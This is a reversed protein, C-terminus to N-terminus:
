IYREVSVYIGIKMLFTKLSIFSPDETGHGGGAQARGPRAQGEQQGEHGEEECDKAQRWCAQRRGPHEADGGSPLQGVAGASFM